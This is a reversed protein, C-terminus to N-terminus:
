VRGSSTLTFSYDNGIMGKVELVQQQRLQHFLNELVPFSLKLASHLLGLTASGHLWLYRLILDTVLSRSIGLDDLKEPMVPRGPNRPAAGAVAMAAPMTM